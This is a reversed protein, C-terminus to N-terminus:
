HHKTLTSNIYLHCRLLCKGHGRTLIFGGLPTVAKFDRAGTHGKDLPEVTVLKKEM